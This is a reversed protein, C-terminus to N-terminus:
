RAAPPPASTQLWLGFGVLGLAVFFRHDPAPAGLACNLGAAVIPQVNIYLAVNSSHTHRLAWTNLVYTLVTAGLITYLAFWLTPPTFALSRAMAGIAGGAGVAAFMSLSM